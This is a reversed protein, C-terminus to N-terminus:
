NAPGCGGTSIEASPRTGCGSRMGSRLCASIAGNSFPKDYMTAMAKGILVQTTQPSSNSSFGSLGPNALRHGV